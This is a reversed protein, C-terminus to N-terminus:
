KEFKAKLDLYKQYEADHEQMQDIITSIRLTECGTVGAIWSTVISVDNSSFHSGSKVHAELKNLFEETYTNENTVEDKAEVCSTETTETTEDEANCSYVMVSCEIKSAVLRMFEKFCVDTNTVNDVHQITKNLEGVFAFVNAKHIKFTAYEMVGEKFMAEEIQNEDAQSVGISVLNNSEVKVIISAINNNDATGEVDVTNLDVPLGISEIIPQMFLDMDSLVKNRRAIENVNSLADKYTKNDPFVYLATNKLEVHNDILAAKLKSVDNTNYFYFKVGAENLTISFSLHETNNIHKVMLESTKRILSFHMSCSQFVQQAILVSSKTDDLNAVRKKYIATLEDLQHLPVLKYAIAEVGDASQIMKAMSPMNNVVISSVSVEYNKTISLLVIAKPTKTSM